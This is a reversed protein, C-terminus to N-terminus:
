LIEHRTEHSDRGGKGNSGPSLPEIRPSHGLASLFRCPHPTSSLQRKPANTLPFPKEVPWLTTPIGAYAQMSVYSVLLAGGGGGSSSGGGEGFPGSPDSPVNKVIRKQDDPGSALCMTEYKNPDNPLPLSPGFHKETFCCPRQNPGSGGKLRPPPNYSQFIDPSFIHARMKNINNGCRQLFFYM